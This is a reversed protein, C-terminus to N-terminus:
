LLRDVLNKATKLDVGLRERLMKIAEITRGEARFKLVASRVEPSINVQQLAKPPKSLDPRKLQRKKLRWLFVVLSGALVGLGFSILDFSEMELRDQVALRQV